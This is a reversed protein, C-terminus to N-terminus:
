IYWFVRVKFRGYGATSKGYPIGLFSYYEVSSFSSKRRIGRIKGDNVDIVITNEKM